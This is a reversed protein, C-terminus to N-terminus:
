PTARLHFIYWPAGLSRSKKSPQCGGWHGLGFKWVLCPDNTNWTPSLKEKQMNKKMSVEITQVLNCFTEESLEHTKLIFLFCGASGFVRQNCSGDSHIRHFRHFRHFRHLSAVGGIIGGCLKILKIKFPTRPNPLPM